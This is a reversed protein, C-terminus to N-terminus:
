SIKNKAATMDSKINRLGIVNTYAPNPNRMSEIGKNELQINKVASLHVHYADRHKKM